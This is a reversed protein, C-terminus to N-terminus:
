RRAAREPMYTATVFAAVGAIMFLFGTMGFHESTDGSTWIWALGSLVSAVLLALGAYNFTTRNM